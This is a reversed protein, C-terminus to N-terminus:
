HMQLDPSTAHSRDLFCIIPWRISDPASIPDNTHGHFAQAIQANCCYVQSESLHAKHTIRKTPAPHAVQKFTNLLTVSFVTSYCQVQPIPGPCKRRVIWNTQRTCNM